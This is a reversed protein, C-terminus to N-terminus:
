GTKGRIDSCVHGVTEGLEDLIQSIYAQTNVSRGKKLRVSERIELAARRPDPHNTIFGGVIVVAPHYGIIDPLIEPNIGGAVAM